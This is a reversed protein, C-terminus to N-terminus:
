WLTHVHAGQLESYFLNTMKSKAKTEKINVFRKFGFDNARKKVLNTYIYFHVGRDRCRKGLTDENDSYEMAGGGVNNPLGQFQVDDEKDEEENDDVNM